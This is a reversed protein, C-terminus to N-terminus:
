KLVEFILFAPEGNPYNIIKHLNMQEQNITIEEPRLAFLQKRRPNLKELDGIRCNQCHHPSYFKLFIYPSNFSGALFLDDYNEHVAEFYNIIEKPGYQWGWFDASYSPYEIFYRKLYIGFSFLIILFSLFIVLKKTFKNKFFSILRSIGLASLIQFPIIGIISRMAFPGGGDAFPFLTSGLPYLLLWGLLFTFSKKSSWAAALGIILLPLQFWYLQGIGKVSFRTIFHSHYGIDGKEFLFEPLFHDKYTRVMAIILESQSHQLSTNKLQQARSMTKQNTLGFLLPLAMVSLILLGIVIHKLKKQLEKCFIAGLYIIFLPVLFYAPVYTYLTLGFSFLSLILYNSKKSITGLLFLNTSITLFLVLYIFEQGIRSFHIHWPAIALMLASLFGIKTSFLTKGLFFIALITLVGIISSALRISFENLGFILVFPASFYISVGPRYFANFNKFFVPLHNGVEDTGAKILTYANYGISAEDTFFGPPIREILFLRVAFGFIMILILILYSLQKKNKM